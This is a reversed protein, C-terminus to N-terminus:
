PAFLEDAAEALGTQQDLIAAADMKEHAVDVREVRGAALQEVSKQLLPHMLRAATGEGRVRLRGQTAVLSHTATDHPSVKGFPPLQLGKFTTRDWRRM